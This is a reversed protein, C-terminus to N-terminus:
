AKAPSSENSSTGAGPQSGAATTDGSDHPSSLSRYDCPLHNGYNADSVAGQEMRRLIAERTLDCLKEWDGAYAKAVFVYTDEVNKETLMEVLPLASADDLIEGRRSIRLSIHKVQSRHWRRIAPDREPDM